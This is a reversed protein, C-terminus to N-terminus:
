TLEVGRIGKITQIVALIRLGSIREGILVIHFRSKRGPKSSHGSMSTKLELKETWTISHGGQCLALM